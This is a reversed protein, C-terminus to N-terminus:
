QDHNEGLLYEMSAKEQDDKIKFAAKKRSIFARSLARRTRSRGRGEDDTSSERANYIVDIVEVIMIAVLLLLILVMTITGFTLDVRVGQAKGPINYSDHYFQRSRSALQSNPHTIEPCHDILYGYRSGTSYQCVKYVTQDEVENNTTTSSDYHSYELEKQKTSPKKKSAHIRQDRSFSEMIPLKPKRQFTPHSPQWGCGLAVDCSLTGARRQDPQPRSRPRTVERESDQATFLKKLTSEGYSRNPDESFPRPPSPINAPVPAM